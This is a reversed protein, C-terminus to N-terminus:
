HTLFTHLSDITNKIKYQNAVSANVVTANSTSATSLSNKYETIQSLRPRIQQILELLENQKTLSHNYLSLLLSKQGNIETSYSLQFSSLYELQSSFSADFDQELKERVSM